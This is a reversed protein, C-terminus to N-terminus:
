EEANDANYSIKMNGPGLFRLLKIEYNNKIKSRISSTRIDLGYVHYKAVKEIKRMCEMCM